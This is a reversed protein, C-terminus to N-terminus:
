MTCKTPRAIALRMLPRIKLLPMTIKSWARGYLGALKEARPTKPDFYAVIEAEPNEAYEPAHRFEAISGCGIIGIKIMMKKAKQIKNIKM